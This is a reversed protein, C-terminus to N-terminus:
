AQQFEPTVGIMKLLNAARERPSQGDAEGDIVLQDREEVFEILASHTEDSVATMTLQDLARDVLM